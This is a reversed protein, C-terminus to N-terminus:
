NTVHRTKQMTNNRKTATPTYKVPDKCKSDILDVPQKLTHHPCSGCYNAQIRAAYYGICPIFFSIIPYTNKGTYKQM